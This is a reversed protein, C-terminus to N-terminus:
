DNEIIEEIRKAPIRVTVRTWEQKISELQLGYDPGYILKIRININRLGINSSDNTPSPEMLGEEAINIDELLKEIETETMGVGNDMVQIFIDNNECGAKIKIIGNEGKPEIGHTIANEVIPQLVLKVIGYSYVEEDISIEYNLFEKFRLKQIELYCTLNELEDGIATFKSRTNVSYRLMKALGKSVNNIEPVKKVVAMSSIIQLTNYIFHPNIQAQLYKFEANNRALKEGYKEVILTKITSIMSNFSGILQGLEDNSPKDLRVDFNGDKVSSMGTQLRKIPKYIIRSFIYAIFITIVLAVLLLLAYFLVLKRDDKAVVSYPTLTLLKWGTITSTNFAVLFKEGSIYTSFKGDSNGAINKILESGIDEYVFATNRRYIIRGYKDLFLVGTNSGLNVRDVISNIVDTTLDILVVVEPENKKANTVSKLLRSFSLVEKNYDLQYPQHPAFIVTKGNAAITDKFWAEGAPDYGLKNIGNVSYSFTKSKSVYIYISNFDKRLFILRQFFDRTVKLAIYEDSISTYEGTALVEQMGPNSETGSTDAYISMIIRDVQDLNDKFDANINNVLRAANNMVTNEQQNHLYLFSIVSSIMIIIFVIVIIGYFLKNFISLDAIHKKIFKKQFLVNIINM